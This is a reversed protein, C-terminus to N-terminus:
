KERVNKPEVAITRVRFDGLFAHGHLDVIYVEQSHRFGRGVIKGLTINSESTIVVETDAPLSPRNPKIANLASNRDPITKLKPNRALAEALQLQECVWGVSRNLHKATDRLSWGTKTGVTGASFKEQQQQHYVATQTVLAIWTQSM